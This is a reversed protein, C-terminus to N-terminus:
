PSETYRCCKFLSGKCFSTVRLSLLYAKWNCPRRFPLQPAKGCQTKFNSM